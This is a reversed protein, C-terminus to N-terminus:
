PGTVRWDRVVADRVLTDLGPRLQESAERNSMGCAAALELLTVRRPVEVYGERIESRLLDRQASTLDSGWEVGPGMRENM